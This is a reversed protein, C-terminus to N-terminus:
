GAPSPVTDLIPTGPQLIGAQVQREIEAATLGLIESAICLTSTGMLPAPYQPPRPINESQVESDNVILPNDYEPQHLETILRRALVHDDTPLDTVRRMWGAPVGGSQLLKEASGPSQERMWQEVATRIERERSLRGAASALGLDDLWDKRVLVTALGRFQADSQVDVVVWEDDGSAPFIGRPADGGRRNGTAVLSDRSISELALHDSMGAFIIDVQSGCLHGGRGTRARRILLAAIGCAQIRAAIHDPYVTTTDSFSSEEEPYQWLSSLGASARVLPGYGLRSSWPGVPGFASSESLIIRPNLAALQEYGIGLKALTGPKFNTLVVDSHKVLEYFHSLGEATRLNLGLSRKNRHGRSFSETIPKDSRVQRSGDPFQLSEIKIVDAGYDAFLRGLEAGVVIVGLDLVRLGDFPLKGTTRTATAAYSGGISALVESNHEAIAPAPRQHPTRRGDITFWGAPVRAQRGSELTLTSFSNAQAYAHESLVEGPTLFAATPVGFRRGQDIAEARTLRSFHDTLYPRILDDAAQRVDILGLEPALLPEPRGLWEVMSQWQRASLTCIRVHGDSVRFTPYLHRADPRGRAAGLASTNGRATGAIGFSPDLSQIVADLISFDIDDGRGCSLSNSYALMAAWAAQIAATEYVLHVPPLLPESMEPLGSRSLITGMAALVDASGAWDRRPGEQGFDSIWVTVLSPNLARLRPRNLGLEALEHPHRDCLFIDASALLRELLEHDGPDTADLAVARKNANRVAFTLSEGEFLIGRRRAPSGSRPEILVVDAGLDALVRGTTASHRDMVEIVRVGALPGQNDQEDM